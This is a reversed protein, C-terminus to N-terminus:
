DTLIHGRNATLVTRTGEVVVRTACDIITGDSKTVYAHVFTEGASEGTVIGGGDVTAVADDDSMYNLTAYDPQILSDDPMVLKVPIQASRGAKLTLGFGVSVADTVADYEGSCPVYVYYALPHANSGCDCYPMNEPKESLAIWNGATDAAATQSANLGADANLIARPVIFYLWGRLIGKEASGNQKAYVGYREQVTMIVPNWITPVPLMQASANHTYYIVEFRDGPEVIFRVVTRTRPNVRMERWEGPVDGGIYRIYCWYTTDNPDEALSPAPPRSVRLVMSDATITECVTSVANYAIQGGMIRERTELSFAASTYTGSIRATDPIVGILRNGMGGTIESLNATISVSGETATKDYGIINGTLPDFFIQEAVGKVFLAPDGFVLTQGAPAYPYVTNDTGDYLVGVANVAGGSVSLIRFRFEKVSEIPFEYIGEESVASVKTNPDSVNWGAIQEWEGEGIDTRGELMLSLTQFAGSIQAVALNYRDNRFVPGPGAEAANRLFDLNLSQM